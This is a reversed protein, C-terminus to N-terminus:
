RYFQKYNHKNVSIYPEGLEENKIHLLDDGLKIAVNKIDVDNNCSIFTIFSIVYSICYIKEIIIFKSM